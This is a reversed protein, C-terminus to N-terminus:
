LIKQPEEGSKVANGYCVYRAVQAHRTNILAALQLFRTELAKRRRRERQAKGEKKRDLGIRSKRRRGTRM